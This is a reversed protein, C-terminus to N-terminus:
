VNVKVTLLPVIASPSHNSVYRPPAAAFLIASAGVPPALKSPKVSDALLILTSALAVVIELASRAVAFLARVSLSM